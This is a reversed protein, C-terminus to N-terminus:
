RPMINPRSMLFDLIDMSDTLSNRYVARQLTQTEAMITTLVQEEFDESNLHKQKFPVGNMM